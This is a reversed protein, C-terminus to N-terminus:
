AAPTDAPRLGASEVKWLADRLHEPLALVDTLQDTPDTRGLAPRDLVPTMEIPSGM